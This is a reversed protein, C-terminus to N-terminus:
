GDGDRGRGLQREVDGIKALRRAHREGAFDADLWARLIDTAMEASTLRGGLCLVNADNHQRSSRATYLDGCLAARVGGIKNATIAMGIGTGCILVGRDVKGDAVALGVQVAYDPYDVSETASQTGVDLVQYGQDILWEKLTEKLQFGAHDAGLAVASIV